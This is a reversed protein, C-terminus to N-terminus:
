FDFYLYDKELVTRGFRKSSQTEIHFVNSQKPFLEMFFPATVKVQKWKKPCSLDFDLLFVEELQECQLFEFGQKKGNIEIILKKSFYTQIYNQNKQYINSHHKVVDEGFENKLINELDDTFVKMTMSASINDENQQVKVVSLYIGHNPSMPLLYSYIAVLFSFVTM